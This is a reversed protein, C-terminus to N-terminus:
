QCIYLLLAELMRIISCKFIMFYNEETSSVIEYNAQIAKLVPEDKVLFYKWILEIHRLLEQTVTIDIDTKINQFILKFLDIIDSKSEYSQLKNLMEFLVINYKSYVDLLQQPIESKNTLITKWLLM